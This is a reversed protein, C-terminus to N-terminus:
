LILVMMLMDGTLIIEEMEELVVENGLVMIMIGDELPEIIDVDVVEVETIDEGEELLISPILMDEVEVAEEMIVEMEEM